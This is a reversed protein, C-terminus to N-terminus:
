TKASTLFLRDIKTLFPDPHDPKPKTIPYKDEKGPLGHAATIKIHTYAKAPLVESANTLRLVNLKKFVVQV